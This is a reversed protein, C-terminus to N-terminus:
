VVSRILPTAIGAGSGPRGSIGQMNTLTRSGAPAVAVPNVANALENISLVKVGQLSAVRNLNLDNSVISCRLTKGLLILKSDVDPADEFDIDSIQVPVDSEKQLQTLM